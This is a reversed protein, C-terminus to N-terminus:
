PVAGGFLYNVGLVIPIPLIQRAYQDMFDNIKAIKTKPVWVIDDAHLPVDASRDGRSLAARLDVKLFSPTTTGQNRLIVVDDLRGSRKVGGVQFIGQIASLSAPMDVLGPAAVEGGIYVRRPAFQRVMVAIEPRALAGRYLEILRTRVTQTSQGIVVVEGVLQLAIRGDPRVIAQENLESNYFFKIDLTDGQRLLYEREPETAGPALFPQVAQALVAAPIFGGVMLAGVVIAGCVSRTM